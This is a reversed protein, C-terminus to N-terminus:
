KETAMSCRQVSRSVILGLSHMIEHTVIGMTMYNGICDSYASAMGWGRISYFGNIWSGGGSTFPTTACGVSWQRKTPDQPACTNEFFPYFEGYAADFGSHIIVVSDLYGDYGTVPDGYADYPEFDFQTMAYDLADGFMNAKQCYRGSDMTGTDPNRVYYEETEPLDFWDTVTFEVNYKNMSAYRLYEKVSGVKNVEPFAGGGNMLSDIYEKSPLDRDRHDAFRLLLVISKINGENPNRIASEADRRRCESEDMHRCFEPHINTPHYDFTINRNKRYKYVNEYDKFRPPAMSRVM